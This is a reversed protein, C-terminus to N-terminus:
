MSRLVEVPELRAARRAPIFAALVAVLGLLVCACCMTVPDVPKVGFLLTKMYSALAVSGIAGLFVGIATLGLGQKVVMRRLQDPTAGLAARIGLERTRQGVSFSILGYIGVAALLLAIGAFAALTNFGERTSQKVVDDMSRVRGVALGGSAVRLERQIDNSLSYPEAATRVVWTIPLVRVDIATMGKPVQSQPVYIMPEPGRNLGADRVDGAIGIIERPPAAFETGLYKDVTIREGIPNGKPWFRRAIAESIVAVSSSTATDRNTFFRGRKLPIGFVTAYNSSVPRMLAPGHVKESGLPRGEIIFSSGFALQVPLTWTSAAAVVGPLGQLREVGRDVLNSVAATDQYRTGQLSMQMTLIKHTDLGTEVHRLAAFTRIM